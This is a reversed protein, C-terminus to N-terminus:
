NKGKFDVYVLHAGRLKTASVSSKKRTDLLLFHPKYTNCNKLVFVNGDHKQETVKINM